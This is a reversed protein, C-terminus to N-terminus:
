PHATVADRRASRRARRHTGAAMARARRIGSVGLLAGLFATALPSLSPVLPVSPPISAPSAVRFGMSGLPGVLVNRNAAALFGVGNGFSGGRTGRSSLDIITENWEFANGGQDFTGYPSASGTYSEAPTLGGVANSCNARNSTPGAAACITTSDSGTPYNFYSTSVPDYFAAKYWEDENTLYVTAGANRTITNDAIGQATITYAGGETTSGTQDGIPQGNHLWNAFRLADHFSAHVVPM